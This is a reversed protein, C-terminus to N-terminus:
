KCPTNKVENTIDADDSWGAIGGYDGNGQKFNYSIEKLKDSRTYGGSWPYKKGKTDRCRCCCCIGNLKQQYDINLFYFELLVNHM